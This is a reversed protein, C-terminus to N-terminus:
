KNKELPKALHQVLSLNLKKIEALVTQAILRAGLENFHTNDIKGSPYNPHEGPALQLFLLKSNEPGFKQLLAQSERDLDILPVNQEKAVERVIASYTLHTEKIKGQEDFNRRTVPTILVPNARKSRTENVYRILYNKYDVESTYTAVKAKSEDNHGFQVFVYDGERLSDVIPQWRNEEIFSRTSRGNKARNDVVVSEDFFYAFPVGWGMEPYARVEKESMTSDGVLYIKIKRSPMSFSLLLVAGLLILLKQKYM